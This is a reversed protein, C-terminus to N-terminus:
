RRMVTEKLQDFTVQTKRLPCFFLPARHGVPRADFTAAVLEKEYREVQPDHAERAAVVAWALASVRVSTERKLLPGSPGELLDLGQRFLTARAAQDAATSQAMSLLAYANQGSEYSRTYWALAQDVSGDLYDVNGRMLLARAYLAGQNDDLGRTAKLKEMRAINEDLETKAASRSQDSYSLVEALTLPTLFEGDKTELRRAAEELHRKASAMNAEQPRDLDCWNKEVLGLFHSCFAQQFIHEAPADQDGYIEVGRELMRVAADVDNTYFASVGLLQYISALEYRSRGEDDELIADLTSSPITEFTTLARTAVAEEQATLRTWAMRSHGRFTLMLDRVHDYQNRFHKVFSAMAADMQSLRAVIRDVDTSREHQAEFTKKVLEIVGGLKQIGDIQTSLLTAEREASRHALDLSQGHSEKQRKEMEIARAEYFDRERFVSEEYFRREREYDQRHREDARRGRLWTLVVMLGGVFSGLAGLLALVNFARDTSHALAEFRLTAAKLESDVRASLGDLRREMNGAKAQLDSVDKDLADLPQGPSAAVPPLPQPPRQAVAVGWHLLLMCSALSALFTAATGAPAKSPQHGPM